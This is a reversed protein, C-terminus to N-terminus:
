GMLVNHEQIINLLERVNGDLNRATVDSLIKEAIDARGKTTYTEVILKIDEVGRKSLSPLKVVTGAIRHYLDSRFRDTEKKIDFRNTASVLRFNSSEEKTDGVRRFKKDQLVRLLKGQLLLPMDGIEDLFLTGNEAEKIYGEKDYTLGTYAGKKAGFFESELLEGPISCCSVKVLKGKRDGHLSEAIMEKGTGTEGLILVSIDSPSLKPILEMKIAVLPPYVTLFNKLVKGWPSCEYIAEKLLKDDEELLKHVEERTPEPNPTSM